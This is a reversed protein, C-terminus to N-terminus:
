LVGLMQLRPQIRHYGAQTVRMATSSYRCPDEPDSSFVGGQSPVNHGMVVVTHASMMGLAAVVAVQEVSQRVKHLV